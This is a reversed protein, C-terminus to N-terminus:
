EEMAEDSAPEYEGGVEMGRRPTEQADTPPEKPPSTQGRQRWTLRRRRARLAVVNQWDGIALLAASRARWYDEYMEKALTRSNSISRNCIKSKILVIPVM